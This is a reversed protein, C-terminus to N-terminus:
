LRLLDLIKRQEDSLAREPTVVAGQLGKRAPSRSLVGDSAARKFYAELVRLVKGLSAKYRAMVADATAHEAPDDLWCDYDTAVALTVYAIQAERALFAEPVNTM